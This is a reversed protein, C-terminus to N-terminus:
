IFLSKRWEEIIQTSVYGDEKLAHRDVERYRDGNANWGNRDVYRKMM